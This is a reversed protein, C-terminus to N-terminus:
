GEALTRRCPPIVSCLRVGGAYVQVPIAMLVSCPVISDPLTREEALPIQFPTPLVGLSCSATADCHYRPRGRPHMKTPARAPRIQVCHQLGDFTEFSSMQVNASFRFLAEQVHALTSFTSFIADNSFSVM